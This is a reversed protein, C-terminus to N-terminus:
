VLHDDPNTAFAHEQPSGDVTLALHQVHQDLLAPVFRRGQPQQAFQQSPLPDPWLRDNGIPQTRIAGSQVRYSQPPPVPRAAKTRVIARLVRM